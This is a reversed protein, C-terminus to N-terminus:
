KKNMPEALGYGSSIIEGDRKFKVYYGENNNFRRTYILYKERSSRMKISDAGVPALM